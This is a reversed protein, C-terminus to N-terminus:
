GSEVDGSRENGNALLVKALKRADELTAASELLVRFEDRLAQEADGDRLVVSYAVTVQQEAPGLETAPKGYSQDLLMAIFTATAKSDPIDVVYHASKACSKCTVLTTVKKTAQMAGRLAEEIESEHARAFAALMERPQRSDGVPSDGEEEVVDVVPEDTV